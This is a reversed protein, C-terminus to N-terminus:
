GMGLIKCLQTKQTYIYMSLYLISSIHDTKSLGPRSNFRGVATWLHADDHFGVGFDVNRLTQSTRFILPVRDDIVQVATTTPSLQLVAGPSFLASMAICINSGCSMMFVNCLHDIVSGTSLDGHCLKACRSDSPWPM